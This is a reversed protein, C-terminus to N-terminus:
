FNSVIKQFHGFYIQEFRRPRSHTHKEGLVLYKKEFFTLNLTMTISNKINQAQHNCTKLIWPLFAGTRHSFLFFTLLFFWIFVGAQFKVILFEYFEQWLLLSVLKKFNQAQHNCTKLIWPLFAGTRHSFLFFTLLFFWIFVGAQFKM